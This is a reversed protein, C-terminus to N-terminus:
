LMKEKTVSKVVKPTLIVCTLTELSEEHCRRHLSVIIVCENFPNLANMIILINKITQATFIM